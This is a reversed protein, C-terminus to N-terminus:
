GVELGLARKSSVLHSRAPDVTRVSDFSYVSFESCVSYMLRFDCCYMNIIFVYTLIIVILLLSLHM